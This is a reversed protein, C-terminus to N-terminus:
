NRLTATTEISGGKLSDYRLTIDDGVDARVIFELKVTDFGGVGSVSLREPRDRQESVQDMWENRVVGSTIVEAGEVTAIDMRHLKNRAAWATVTPIARENLITARVRWLGDGLRETEVTRFSIKPLHRAHFLVFAANRHCEEELMWGEPVRITDHKYGGVEVTGYQPHEVESWESYMRGLALEDNFKMREEDSVSGDGDFDQEPGYLENTFSIAGHVGYFHNVTGGYVTYLDEWIVWYNYGPLMNEGEEGLYDYVEIDQPPYRTESKAGPGRLIMRGTNHFSQAAAINPKTMAWMAISRTEPIQLPYQTTGSQVYRPEWAYGWTRNPDIYGLTDENVRGDGDNDIGESGLMIWDGLTEGEVRQMLRPDDPHLRHTGEGPPVRKRMQTIEGDGDLDDYGDEDLRGDRDDDVSYKVTRPFSPTAPEDFWLARSDPSVTPVFYFASRDLLETVRDLKGYNKLMYDIIYLTTETAQAENAHIAGDVYMGPKSTDPGTGPNNITLLWMDRGGLSKGISELKVWDPYAEAYGQLMADIEDPHYLRNFHPDPPAAAPELPEAGFAALPSLSVCAAVAISKLTKM